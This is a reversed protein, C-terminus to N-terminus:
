MTCVFMGMNIEVSFYGKEKIISAAESLIWQSDELAWQRVKPNRNSLYYGLINNPNNIHLERKYERFNVTKFSNTLTDGTTKIINRNHINEKGRGAYFLDKLQSIHSDGNVLNIFIGGPKLVRIVENVTKPFNIFDKNNSLVMDISNGPCSLDYSHETKYDLQFGSLETKCKELKSEVPSTIAINSRSFNKYISDWLEHTVNDIEIVSIHKFRPLNKSVWEYFPKKSISYSSVTPKNLLKEM